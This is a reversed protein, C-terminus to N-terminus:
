ATAAHWDLLVDVLAEPQELAPFHGCGELRDVHAQPLLERLRRGATTWRQFPDQLGWIIQVPLELRRLAPDLIATDSARLAVLHREFAERGSPSTCKSDWVVRDLVEDSVHADSGLARRVQWRMFPNPVLRLRAALRYGGLRALLTSVRARPAPWSGDTIANVLSLRSVSGPHQVALLQGVAGGSDHGVVWAPAHGQMSLWRAISRATGSLSHDGSDPLRTDGYGPLDPALARHGRAALLPLVERWLEAGTPIGHLLVVPEGHGAELVSLGVDDVDYRTRHVAGTPDTTM